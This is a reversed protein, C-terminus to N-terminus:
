RITDKRAILADGVVVDVPGFCTQFFSTALDNIPLGIVKGEEHIVIFFKKCDLIQIMPDPHGSAVFKQLEQLTFAKGNRPFVDEPEENVRLWINPPDEFKQPISINEEFTEFVKSYRTEM